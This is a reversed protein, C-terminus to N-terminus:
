LDVLPRLRFNQFGLRFVTREQFFNTFGKQHRLLFSVTCYKSYLEQFAFPYLKAIPFHKLAEQINKVNHFLYIICKLALSRSETVLIKEVLKESRSQLLSAANIIRLLLGCSLRNELSKKSSFFEVGNFVNCGFRVILRNCPQLCM